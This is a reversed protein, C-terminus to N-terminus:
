PQQPASYWYKFVICYLFHSPQIPPPERPASPDWVPNRAHIQVGWAGRSKCDQVSVVLVWILLYSFLYIYQSSHLCYNFLKLLVYQLLILFHKSLFTDLLLLLGWNESVCLLCLFHIPCPSLLSESSLVTILSFIFSVFCSASWSPHHRSPNM